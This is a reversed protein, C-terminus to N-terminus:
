EGTIRENSGRLRIKSGAERSYQLWLVASDHKHIAVELDARSVTVESGSETRVRQSAASVNIEYKASQPSLLEMRYTGSIPGCIEIHDKCDRIEGTDENEDCDFYAQALPMQQWGRNSRPDYGMERGRPDTIRFAVKPLGPEGTAYDITMRGMSFCAQENDPDREEHIERASLPRRDLKSDALLRGAEPPLLCSTLAVLVLYKM